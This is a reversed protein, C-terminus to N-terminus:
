LKIVLVGFTAAAPDIAAATINTARVTVVDAATVRADFVIGANVTAPLSLVVPDGFVAGAVTITLTSTTVAAISPFDLSAAAYLPPLREGDSGLRVLGVTDGSAPANAMLGAYVNGTSVASLKSVSADWFVRQGATWAAGTIRPLSFVGELVVSVKSGSACDAAAVGLVGGVLVAQGAVLTAGATITLADGKQIFNRM